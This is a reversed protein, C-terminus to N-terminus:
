VGLSRSNTRAAGTSTRMTLHRSPLRPYTTVGVTSSRLVGLLRCHTSSKRPAAVGHRSCDTHGTHGPPDVTANTVSRPKLDFVSEDCSGNHQSILEPARNSTCSKRPRAFQFALGQARANMARRHQIHGMRVTEAVAVMAPHVACSGDGTKGPPGRAACNQPTPSGM